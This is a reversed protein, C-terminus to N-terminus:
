LCKGGSADWPGDWGRVWTEGKRRGAAERGVRSGSREPWRSRGSQQRSPARGHAFRATLVMPQKLYARCSLAVPRLTTGSPVCEVSAM